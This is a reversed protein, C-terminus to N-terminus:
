YVNIQFTIYFFPKQSYTIGNLRLRCIWSDIVRAMITSLASHVLHEGVGLFMAHWSYHLSLCHHWGAPANDLMSNRWLIRFCITCYARASATNRSSRAVTPFPYQPIHLLTVQLLTFFFFTTASGRTCLYSLQLICTDSCHQDIWGRPLMHM